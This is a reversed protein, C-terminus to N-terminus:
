SGASAPAAAEIVGCMSKKQFDESTAYSPPTMKTVTIKSGKGEGEIMVNWPLTVQGGNLQTNQTFSLMGLDKDVSAVTLGSKVGEIQIRKLADAPAVNPVVDWTTFTRGSFFSGNKSYNTECAKEASAEFALLGLAAVM